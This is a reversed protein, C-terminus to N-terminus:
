FPAAQTLFAERLLHWRFQSGLSPITGVLCFSSQMLPVLIQLCTHGSRFLLSPFCGESSLLSFPPSFCCTLACKEMWLFGHFAMALILCPPLSKILNTNWFNAEHLIDFLSFCIDYILAYTTSDLFINYIIKIAFCFYLCLCLSCTNSALPFPPHPSVYQSIPTSM